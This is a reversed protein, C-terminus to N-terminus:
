KQSRQSPYWMLASFVALGRDEQAERNIPHAGLCRSRVLFYVRPGLFISATQLICHKNAEESHCPVMMKSGQGPPSVSGRLSCLSNVDGVGGMMVVPSILSIVLSPFTLILSQNIPFFRTGQQAYGLPDRGAALGKPHMQLGLQSTLPRSNLVATVNEKAASGNGPVLRDTQVPVTPM